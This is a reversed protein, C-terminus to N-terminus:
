PVKELVPRWSFGDGEFSTETAHFRSVTLFGRNVAHMKGDIEIRERCWNASHSTSGGIALDADTFPPSLWAYVGQPYAAFDGDGEHIGGILANWESAIDQTSHGCELLRVRYRNGKSDVVTANQRFFRWGIRVFSDDGLAAGAKAIEDWSLVYRLPRAAILLGKGRYEFRLWEPPESGFHRGSEFRLQRDVGDNPGFLETNSVKGAYTVRRSPSWRIANGDSGAKQGPAERSGASVRELVPRWQLRNTRLEPPAAHFRSVFFYGRAVREGKWEDRCWSLAGKYGVKLDQNGYPSRIWGYREGKFDMDGRHVAGILLNWESLDARTAQGCEPLRVRYENGARDTVRANQASHRGSVSIERDDGLAAGARAIDDWAVLSLLPKKAILIEHREADIRTEFRLWGPRDAQRTGRPKGAEDTPKVRDLLSHDGGFLEADSLEGLFTVEVDRAGLAFRIAQSTRDPQSCGSGVTCVAAFLAPAFVRLIRQPVVFAHRLM